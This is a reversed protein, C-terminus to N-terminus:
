TFFRGKLTVDGFVFDWMNLKGPFALLKTCGAIPKFGDAWLQAARYISNAARSNPRSQTCEAGIIHPLLLVETRMSDLPFHRPLPEGCLVRLVYLLPHSQCHLPAHSHARRAMGAFAPIWTNALVTMELIATDKVAIATFEVAFIGKNIHLPACGHARPM